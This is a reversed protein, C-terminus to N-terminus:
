VTKSLRGIQDITYEGPLSIEFAQDRSFDSAEQTGFPLMNSIFLSIFNAESFELTCTEVQMSKWQSFESIRDINYKVLSGKLTHPIHITIGETVHDSRALVACCRPPIYVKVFGDSPIMPVNHRIRDGIGGFRAEDSDFVVRLPATLRTPISFDVLANTAHFNFVFLLGGREFTITKLDEDKLFVYEDYSRLIGFSQDIAMMAADFRELGNYRLEINDALGWQRRCWHYSWDNGVRPFDVWEPHGFENGMFTLYGNNGLALTLLRIMKHLAIGRDVVLSQSSTSMDTYIAADMLWMAMTKDGVISQDHSETYAITKENWRRNTLTHVINGVNWDEDRTEKLLKIWMDPVAMALRFDFGIGGETVPRCLLPMGSVDEAITMASPLITHILENALMLYSVADSDVSGGFYEHYGGSFGVGIGHHKYLMSTIGDFRFGDFGFDEIWYRCNSLLFRSVEWKAYDFLASDWLEHKGLSGAHTYCHDTGDMCSIGDLHNDSMHSHVIDMLVIMGMGHAVDILERLDEPSGFRSSPAFFSTVHYGFSGYYAHEMVAMLQITNYGLRSIRPLVLQQFEKYSSVKGESSSMGIHAEYIRPAEPRAPRPYKPVYPSLPEWVMSDFLNTESSQVLYKAWASNRDVVSGDQCKISLKYRQGHAIGCSDPLVICWRGFGVNRLLTVNRDWSNFDGILSVSTAGPLYECFSWGEKSRRLGFIEQGRSFNYLSVEKDAISRQLECFRTLRNRLESKFPRLYPDAEFVSKFNEMKRKKETEHCNNKTCACKVKITYIRELTSM